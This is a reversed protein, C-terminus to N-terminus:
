SVIFYLTSTNTYIQLSDQVGRACPFPARERKECVVFLEICKMNGTFSEMVVSSFLVNGATHSPLCSALCEVQLSPQYLFEAIAMFEGTKCAAAVQGRVEARTNKPEM